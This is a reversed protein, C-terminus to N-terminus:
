PITDFPQRRLTLARDGDPFPHSASAEGHRVIVPRDEAMLVSRFYRTRALVLRVASMVTVPRSM